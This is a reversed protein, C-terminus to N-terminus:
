PGYDQEMERMTDLADIFADHCGDLLNFVGKFVDKFHVLDVSDPLKSLTSQGSTDQTYRLGQGSHDINHFAQIVREVASLIDVEGDPWFKKASSKVYNWLRYLDHRNLIAELKKNGELLDIKVALRIIEKMKLELAQRYLYAIPFFYMDPHKHGEGHELESIIKDGAEKFSSALLSDNINLRGMWDLSAWTPSHLSAKKVHFPNDGKKPWRFDKM